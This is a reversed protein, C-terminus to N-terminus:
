PVNKYPASTTQISFSPVFVFLDTGEEAIDRVKDYKASGSSGDGQDNKKISLM